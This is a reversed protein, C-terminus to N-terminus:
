WFMAFQNLLGGEIGGLASSVVVIVRCKKLIRSSADEERIERADADSVVLNTKALGQVQTVDKVIFRTQRKREGKEQAFAPGPSLLRVLDAAREERGMSMLDERSRDSVVYRAMGKQVLAQEEVTTFDSLTEGNETIVRPLIAPQPRSPGKLARADLVLWPSEDNENVPGGGRGTEGGAGPQSRLSTLIQRTLGKVGKMPARYTVRYFSEKGEQVFEQAHPEYQILGSIRIIVKEKELDGLTNRDDVRLQSAVQLIASLANAQAVKLAKAKSGDNLLPYGKGTGYFYGSDWDAKGSPFTEVFPSFKGNVAWLSTCFLLLFLGAFYATANKQIHHKM